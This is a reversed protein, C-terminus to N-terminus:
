DFLSLTTVDKLLSTSAWNPLVMVISTWSIEDWVSIAVKSATLIHRPQLTSMGEARGGSGNPRAFFSLNNADENTYVLTFIPENSSPTDGYLAEYDGLSFPGNTIVDDAYDYADQYNGQYLHVRALLAKATWGTASRSNPSGNAGLTSEADGLDTAIQSYVDSVSSRSVFSEEGLSTTPTTILPVPGFWRVLSHYALARLVKAESVIQGKEADSFGEEDINPVNAILNNAINILDYYDIWLDRSEANSALMNHQDVAAWSPYSGSHGADDAALESFVYDDQLVVQYQSYAGALTANAGQETTLVTESPLSQQPTQNTVDCSAVVFVVLLATSIKQMLYKM